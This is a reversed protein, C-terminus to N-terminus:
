MHLNSKNNETLITKFFAHPTPLTANNDKSGTLKIRKDLDFITGSIVYTEFINEKKSLKRVTTELNKWIRRNFSPRQPVM